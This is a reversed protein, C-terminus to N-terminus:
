RLGGLGMQAAGQKRRFDEQNAAQRAQTSAFATDRAAEVHVGRLTDISAGSAPNLGRRSMDRYMSGAADKYASAVDTKAQGAWKGADVGEAAADFYQQGARQAYPLMEMGASLLGQQYATQSPLLSEAAASQMAEYPLGWERYYGMMEEALEQNAEAIAAMRANYKKDIEGGGGSSGM